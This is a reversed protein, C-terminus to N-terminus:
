FLFSIFAPIKIIPLSTREPLVCSTLVLVNAIQNFENPIGTASTLTIGSSSFIIIFVILSSLSFYEYINVVPPIPGM